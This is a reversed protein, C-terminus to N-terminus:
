NRENVRRMFDLNIMKRKKDFFWGWKNFYKIASIAHIILLNFKKYSGQQYDHVISVSPLYILKAVSSIKRSLDVDEMYMFYRGDFGGVFKLVSTKAIFFCGSILPVEIMESNLLESYEYNKNIKDVIVKNNLFRRAILNLPSPILKIIKQIDGNQYLVKPMVAGISRDSLFVKLIQSIVEPKFRVDPNIVIHYDSDDIFELIAKNHGKGFGVNKPSHYYKIRSNALLPSMSSVPSNDIVYIIGLTSNLLSNIAGSFTEIPTNYLVLSASINIM